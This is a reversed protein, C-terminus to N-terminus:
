GHRQVSIAHVSALSSIRCAEAVAVSAESALCPNMCIFLISQSVAGSLSLNEQQKGRGIVTKTKTALNLNRFDICIRIKVVPVINSVWEAYRIPKLFGADLLGEKVKLTQNAPRTRQRAQFRRQDPAPARSGISDQCRMTRGPSESYERLQETVAKIMEPSQNKSKTTPRPNNTGLNVEQRPSRGSPRRVEGISFM